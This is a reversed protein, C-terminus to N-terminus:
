FGRRDPVVPLNIDDVRFPLVSMTIVELDAVVPLNMAPFSPDDLCSVM